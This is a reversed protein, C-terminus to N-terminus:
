ADLTFSVCNIDTEGVGLLPNPQAKLPSKKMSLRNQLDKYNYLASKEPTKLSSMPRLSYRSRPLARIKKNWSRKPFKKKFQIFKHSPKPNLKKSSTMIEKYSSVRSLPRRDPITKIVSSSRQDEEELSDDLM